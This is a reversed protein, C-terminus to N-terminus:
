AALQTPSDNALHNSPANRRRYNVRSSASRFTGELVRRVKMNTKLRTALDNIQSELAPNSLRDYRGVKVGLQELVSYLQSATSYEKHRSLTYKAARQLRLKNKIMDKLQEVTEPSAAELQPLAREIYLPDEKLVYAIERGWSQADNEELKALHHTEPYLLADARIQKEDGSRLDKREDEVQAEVHEFAEDVYKQVLEPDNSAEIKENAYRLALRTLIEKAKAAKEGSLKSEYVTQGTNRDIREITVDGDHKAVYEDVTAGSGGSRDVLIDHDYGYGANDTHALYLDGVIKPQGEGGTIDGYTLTSADQSADAYVNGFGRNDFRGPAFGARRHQDFGAMDGIAKDLEQEYNSQPATESM